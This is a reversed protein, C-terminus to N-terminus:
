AYAFTLCYVPNPCAARVTTRAAELTAGTTYVDDVLVITQDPALQRLRQQNAVFADHVNDHRAARALSTQPKTHKTRTLLQPYLRKQLTSQTNLCANVQNFGRERERKPHLPIPVICAAPFQEDLYSRAVSGLLKHARRNYFFKAEHVLARGTPHHFPLLCITDPAPRHPTPTLAEDAVSRVILEDARPPFCWDLTLTLFHRM